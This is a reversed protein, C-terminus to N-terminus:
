QQKDVEGGGYDVGRLGGRTWRYYGALKEDPKHSAPTPSEFGLDPDAYQMVTWSTPKRSPFLHYEGKNADITKRVSVSGDFFALPQSAEPYAYFLDQKAVHRDQSDHLAVKQAPVSVEDLKRGGLHYKQAGYHDHEAVGGVVDQHYLASGQSDRGACAVGTLQYSSSFQMWPLNQRNRALRPAYPTKTMGVKRWSLRAADEPCVVSPVPMVDGLYQVLVLATFDQIVYTGSFNNTFIPLEYRVINQNGPRVDTIIHLAQAALDEPVPFQDREAQAIFPNNKDEARGNLAAIFNKFDNAYSAHAVMMQRLNSECIALRGARRAGRIAPLLLSLLIAIIAIVVLLEILTFGTARARNASKSVPQSRAPEVPSPIIIPSVSRTMAHQGHTALKLFSM